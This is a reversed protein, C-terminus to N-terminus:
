SSLISCRDCALPQQRILRRIMMLSMLSRNQPRGVDPLASERRRYPHARM